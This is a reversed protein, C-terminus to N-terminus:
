RDCRGTASERVRLGPSVRSSKSMVVLRSGREAALFMLLEQVPLPQGLFRTLGRGAHPNAFYPRRAGAAINRSSKCRAASLLQTLPCRGTEAREDRIRTARLPGPPATRCLREAWASVEGAADRYRWRVKYDTGYELDTRGAYSGIFSGDGLHLHVKEVGTKAPADWIKESPSVKWIEIDSSAHADGDPDSYNPAEMHLDSPNVIQGDASPETIVPTAPPAPASGNSAAILLPLLAIGLRRM